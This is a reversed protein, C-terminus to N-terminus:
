FVKRYRELTYEGKPKDIWYTARGDKFSLDLPRKGFLRLFLGIPTLILYFFVSLIVRTMVSSLGEALKMWLRFLRLWLSAFLLSLLLAAAGIGWLIFAVTPRERWLQWGGIAALLVALIIAFRKAEQAETRKQKAM